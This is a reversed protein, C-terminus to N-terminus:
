RRVMVPASARIVDGVTIGVIYAGNPLDRLDLDATHDGPAQHGVSLVRIPRGLPDYLVVAADGGKMLSYQLVLHNSAPNPWLSLMSRGARASAGASAIVGIQGAWLGHDSTGVYCIGEEDVDVCLAGVDPGGSVGDEGKHWTYSAYWDRGNESILVGDSTAVVCYGSKAIAIGRLATGTFTQEDAQFTTQNYRVISHEGIAIVDGSPHFAMTVVTTGQTIDSMMDWNYGGDASRFVGASAVAAYLRDYPDLMLGLITREVPVGTTRADWSAGDDESVFLKTQGASTTALVFIRGLSDVEIDDITRITGVIGGLPLSHTAWSEASDVSRLLKGGAGILLNGRRDIRLATAYLYNHTYAGVNWSHGGDTSVSLWIGHCAAMIGAAKDFLSIPSRLSGKYADGWTEGGDDSSFLTSNGAAYVRDGAALAALPKLELVSRNWNAGQDTTVYLETERYMDASAMIYIAGQPDVAMASVGYPPRNPIMTWTEGNDTSRWLNRWLAYLDGNRSSALLPWLSWSSDQAVALQSWSTGADTSRFVSGGGIGAFLVDSRGVTLTAVSAPARDQAQWAGAVEDFKYLQAPNSSGQTTTCFANGRSDVVVTAADVQELGASVDMWADSGPLLRYVWRARDSTEFVAYVVGTGERPLAISLIRVPVIGNMGSEDLGKGLLRWVPKGDSSPPAYYIGERMVGAYLGGEGDLALATVDVARPGNLSKWSIDTQASLMAGSACLMVLAVLIHQCSKM